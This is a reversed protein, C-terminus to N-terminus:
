VREFANTLTSLLCISGERENNRNSHFRFPIAIESKQIDNNSQTHSICPEFALRLGVIRAMKKETKYGIIIYNQSIVFM